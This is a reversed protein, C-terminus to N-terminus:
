IGPGHLTREWLTISQEIEDLFVKNSNGSLIMEAATKIVPRIHIREFGQPFTFNEISEVINEKHQSTVFLDVDSRSDDDGRARNGFLVIRGTNTKLIEGPTEPFVINILTKWAKISANSIDMSYFCMKCKHRPGIVGTNYLSNLAHNASSYSIGIQRAIQREYFERDSFKELLCLIKQNATSIIYTNLM